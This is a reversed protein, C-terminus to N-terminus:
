CMLGDYYHKQAWIFNDPNNMHALRLELEQPQFSTLKGQSYKLAIDINQKLPEMGTQSVLNVSVGPLEWNYQLLEEPSAVGKNVIDRMIKMSIVGLNKNRAVPLATTVFNGYGTANMALLVVDFDLKELLDRAREASDMCSFGIYRVMKEKKLDTILRYIGSEIDSVTDTPLIAHILLADVHDTKMRSLGREFEARAKQPDREDVKTLLFIEKRIPPIVRGLREESSVPENAGYASATDFYNIGAKFAYDFHPEWEGDPMKMFQSGCGYGLISIKEGTKGLVRM